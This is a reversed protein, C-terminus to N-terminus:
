PNGVIVYGDDLTVTMGEFPWLPETLFDTTPLERTCRATVIGDFEGDVDLSEYQTASVSSVRLHGYRLTSQDPPTPGVPDPLAAIDVPTWGREVQDATGALTGNLYVSVKKSLPNQHPWSPVYVRLRSPAALTVPRSESALSEEDLYNTVTCAVTYDGAELGDVDPTAYVTPPWWAADYAYFPITRENSMAFM